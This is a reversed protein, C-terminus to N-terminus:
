ATVIRYLCSANGVKVGSLCSVSFKHQGLEPAYWYRMQLPLGTMPDSFSIVEGPFNGPVSVARAAILLAQKSQAWGALNESQANPTSDITSFEYVGFGGLRPITYNQIAQSNGFAYAAKIADDQALKLFTGSNLILARGDKPVNVVNLDKALTLVSDSDFAATAITEKQSFNANTVLNNVADFISNVIARVGPIVFLDILNFSAKSVQLDTFGVVLGEFTNLTVTVATVTQDVSTYATSLDASVPATAIRTSVADGRERIDSSFDTTFASFPPLERQLVDLAAMSLATLNVPVTNAM